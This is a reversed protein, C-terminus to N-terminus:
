VFLNVKGHRCLTEFELCYKLSQPPSPTPVFTLTYRKQELNLFAALCCSHTELSSVLEDVDVLNGQTAESLLCDAEDFAGVLGETQYHFPLYWIGLGRRSRSGDGGTLM